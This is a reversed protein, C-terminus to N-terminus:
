RMTRPLLLEGSGTHLAPAARQAARLSLRTPRRAARPRSGRRPGRTDSPHHHPPRPPRERHTDSTTTTAEPSGPAPTLTPHLQHKETHKQPLLQETHPRHAEAVAALPERGTNDPHPDAADSVAELVNQLDDPEAAFPHTPANTSLRPAPHTTRNNGPARQNNLTVTVDIDEQLLAGVAPPLPGFAATTMATLPTQMSGLPSQVAIRRSRVTITVADTLHDVRDTTLVTDAAESSATSGRAGTAVGIDASALAPADTVGDGVMATVPRDREARVAAIEDVPTLDARAKDLGLVAGVERAPAARDGTLMVLREIGAAHLRRLTRPADHRLPDRLLM